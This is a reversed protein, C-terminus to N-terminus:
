LWRRVRRRYDEYEAGFKRALYAEERRIVGFHLLAVLPVVALAIWLADVAVAFALEAVVFSVYIPNRSRGYIGSSVVASSAEYPNPSTRHRRLERLAAYGLAFSVGFLAVALGIRPTGDLSLFPRPAFHHAVWGAAICLATLLPPPAIVGARDREAAMM